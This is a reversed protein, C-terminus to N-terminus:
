ALLRRDAQGAESWAPPKEHKLRLSHVVRTQRRFLDASSGLNMVFKARLVAICYDCREELFDVAVDGGAYICPEGLDSRPGAVFRPGAAYRPGSGCDGAAATEHLPHRDTETCRRDRQEPEPVLSSPARTLM